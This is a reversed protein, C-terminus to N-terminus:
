SKIFPDALKSFDELSIEGVKETGNIFFTPTGDVKFAQEGLHSVALVGSYLAQDKLCADVQESTFGTQKVVEKLAPIVKPGPQFAWADQHSFLLDLAAYYKEPPGDKAITRALMFGLVAPPNLPFDRITWQVKGTDIYKERIKPFIDANFRACHPCDLSAYEYVKVPADAKGLSIDPIPGQVALEMISFKDGDDAFAPLVPLASAAALAAILSRRSLMPSM